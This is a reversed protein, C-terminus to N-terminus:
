QDGEPARRAALPAFAYTVLDNGDVDTGLHDLTVRVRTGARVRDPERLRSVIRIGDPLEVVGFGFPLPGDYGPPRNTIITCVEVVGDPSLARPECADAGCYPCLAQAPFTVRACAGCYGGLLRAAGPDAPMTFLGDGIARRAM